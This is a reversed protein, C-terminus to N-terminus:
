VGLVLKLLIEHFKGKTLTYMLLVLFIHFYKYTEIKPERETTFIDWSTWQDILNGDFYNDQAKRYYCLEGAVSFTLLPTTSTSVVRIKLSTVQNTIILTDPLNIIRGVNGCFWTPEHALLIRPPSEKTVLM